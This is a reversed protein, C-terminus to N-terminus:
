NFIPTCFDSTRNSASLSDSPYVNRLSCFYFVSYWSFTLIQLCFLFTLGILNLLVSTANDGDNDFEWNIPSVTVHLCVFVPLPLSLHIYIFILHKEDDNDDHMQSLLYVVGAISIFLMGFNLLLLFIRRAFIHARNIRKRNMGSVEIYEITTKKTGLNTKQTWKSADRRTLEFCVGLRVPVM